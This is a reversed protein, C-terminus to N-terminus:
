IGKDLGKLKIEKRYEQDFRGLPYSGRDVFSFLQDLAPEKEILAGMMRMALNRLDPHSQATSRLECFYVLERLNTAVKISYMAGFPVVYQALTRGNKESIKKWLAEAVQMARTYREIVGPTKEVFEPIQFSNDMGVEERIISMFRHRQFERFAGYNMNLKYTLSVFELIRPLKNRRNARDQAITRVAERLSTESGGEPTSITINKLMELNERSYTLLTAEPKLSNKGGRLPRIDSHRIRGMYEINQDGYKGRTSKLLEDFEKSLEELLVTGIKVAEPIGSAYLRQILYIFARVNGSVGINTLTSCPLFSRIDDLTRARVASNYAKEMNDVDTGDKTILPHELRIQNQVPEISSAYDEFLMDMLATYEREFSPDMGTEKFDL